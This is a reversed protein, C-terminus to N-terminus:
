GSVVSLGFIGGASPASRFAVGPTGPCAKPEAEPRLNRHAEATSRSGAGEERVARPWGLAPLELCCLCVYRKESNILHNPM